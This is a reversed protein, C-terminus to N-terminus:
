CKLNREHLSDKNLLFFFFKKYPFDDLTSYIFISLLTNTMNQVWGQNKDM